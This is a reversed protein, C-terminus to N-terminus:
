FPCAGQAGYRALPSEYGRAQGLAMTLMPLATM